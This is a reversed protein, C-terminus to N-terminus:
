RSIAILAITYGIAFVLHPALSLLLRTSFNNTIFALSGCVCGFFTGIGLYGVLQDGEGFDHVMDAVWLVASFCVLTAFTTLSSIRKSQYWWGALSGMAYFAMVPVTVAFSALYADDSDILSVLSREVALSFLVVMGM